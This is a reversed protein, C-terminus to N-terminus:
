LQHCTLPCPINMAVESPVAGLAGVNWEAFLVVLFFIASVICRWANMSIADIRSSQSRIMLTSVAWCLASGLAAWEGINM